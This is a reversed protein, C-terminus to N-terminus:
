AKIRERRAAPLVGLARAVDVLTIPRSPVKLREVVVREVVDGMGYEWLPLGVATEVHRRFLLEAGRVIAVDMRGQPNDFQIPM